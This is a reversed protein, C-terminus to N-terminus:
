GAAALLLASGILGILSQTVGGVTVTAAGVLLLGRALTDARPWALAALALLVALYHYWLTGPLLLLAVTARRACPGTRGIHSCPELTTYVTAGRAADGAAALAVREAHPGGPPRTAGDYMSGDPAAVVAGVWPNPSTTHRVRAANAIARDMLDRDVPSGM